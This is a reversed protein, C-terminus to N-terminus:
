AFLSGQVGMLRLQRNLCQPNGALQRAAWLPNKRIAARMWEPYRALLAAFWKKLHQGILERVDDPQPRGLFPFTSAPECAAVRLCSAFSFPREDNEPETFIWRLVDFVEDLPAEPDALVRIEDLLLCHLRVVDENTWVTEDPADWDADPLSIDDSFPLRASFADRRGLAGPSLHSFQPM